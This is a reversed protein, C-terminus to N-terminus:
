LPVAHEAPTFRAAFGEASYPRFDGEAHRVIWDGPRAAMAGVSTPVLLVRCDPDDECVTVEGGCWRALEEAAAPEDFRLATVEDDVRQQLSM